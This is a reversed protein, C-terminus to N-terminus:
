IYFRKKNKLNDRLHGVLKQADATYIDVGKISTYNILKYKEIDRKVNLEALRLMGWEPKRERVTVINDFDSDVIHFKRLRYWKENSIPWDGFAEETIHGITNHHYLNVGLSIIKAHHDYCFKWSSGPGHPSPYEGDLNHEMMPQALPGIAVMPNLPHRSVISDKRQVMTLPLWGSSVM